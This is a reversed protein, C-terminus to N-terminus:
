TYSLNRSAKYREEPTMVKPASKRGKPRAACLYQFANMVHDNRKIPKDKGLGKNEGKTFVAWTYHEIEDFFEFCDDFIYVAPHRSAPDLTANLYERSENLGYDKDVVALRAPIGAERYMQLGSKHQEAEKQAGWKPDLIWVDVPDRGTRVLIEKVHESVVQQNKKYTGTIFLDDNPALRGWVAATYGTSAPDISVWSPWERPITTRKVVHVKRNWMPYVLGSKQYFEGYLRAREEPHGAWHEKLRQKEEEPVHPNNFVSLQNFCYDKRGAKYETYLDFVWPERIGSAIDTLPTLTILIKGACDATRQFCEHFIQAEPEEDIWVLDVSASQFKEPGSEASKGTIVSGNKFYLKPESESPKRDLADAPVFGPHTRGRLFKEGWIVDWLVNNDLGVVWINNPPEPIPLHQVYEWAPEDRFFEKGLAWALAVFAGIETKGSRNGGLLGFVKIGKEFRPFVEAQEPTARWYRIFEDERRRRDYALLAAQADEPSLKELERILESYGM